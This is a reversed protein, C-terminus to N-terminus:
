QWLVLPKDQLVTVHFFPQLHSSFSICITDDCTPVIHEQKEM